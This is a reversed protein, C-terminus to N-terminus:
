RVGSKGSVYSSMEETSRQNEILGEISAMSKMHEKRLVVAMYYLEDIKKMTEKM